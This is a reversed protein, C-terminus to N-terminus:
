ATHCGEAASKIAAARRKLLRRMYAELFLADAIRGLLGLPSDYDFVDKM